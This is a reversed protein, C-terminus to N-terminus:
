LFEVNLGTSLKVSLTIALEVKFVMSLKVSLAVRLKIKVMMSTLEVSLVVWLEVKLM